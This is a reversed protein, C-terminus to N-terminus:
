MEWATVSCGEAGSEGRARARGGSQLYPVSQRLAGGGVGRGGGGRRVKLVSFGDLNTLLRPRCLRVAPGPRIRTTGSRRECAM